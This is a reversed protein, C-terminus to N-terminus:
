DKEVAVKDSLLFLGTGNLLSGVFCGIGERLLSRFLCKYLIKCLFGLKDNTM